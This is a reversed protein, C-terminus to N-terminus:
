ARREVSPRPALAPQTPPATRQFAPPIALPDVKPPLTLPLEKALAAALEKLYEVGHVEKVWFVLDDAALTELWKKGVVEEETEDSGGDGGDSEENADSESDSDSDSNTNTDTATSSANTTARPKALLNRAEDITLDTPEVNKAAALRQINGSKWGEYLRAYLTATEYSINFGLTEFTDQWDGHQVRDRIVFVKEGIAIARQLNARESQLIVAYEDNIMKIIDPDSLQAYDTM